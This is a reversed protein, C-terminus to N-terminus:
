LIVKKAEILIDAKVDDPLDQKTLFAEFMSIDTKENLIELNKNVRKHIPDMLVKSVYFAGNKYLMKRVDQKKVSSALTDKVAFKVRVIADKVRVKDVEEEIRKYLTSYDADELNIYKDVLTRSPIKKVAVKKTKTNYDIFFKDINADGFNLKEMSGTYFAIPDKKRLIRFQHYHGMAIMDCKEFADINILVEAGGYHHYTGEHYFNHGVAIIPHDQDCNDILERAEAEYLISDEECSKGDYMRRDRFPLLLLSAKDKNAASIEVVEPKLVIRTNPYDKAALSTIASTFSEGSRKYDHNGMIWISTIGANSLKRICRNVVAIHEPDPNRVDFVDGTQIFVDAKSTITHDVIYNLTKEYDDVRTNGGSGNPGGLGLVAGIHTDGCIILRM